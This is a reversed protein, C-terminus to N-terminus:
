TRRASTLFCGSGGYGVVQAGVVAVVYRALPNERLERLFSAESWPASFALRELAAVRPVDEERMSRYEAAGDEREM